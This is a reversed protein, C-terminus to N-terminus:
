KSELDLRPALGAILGVLEAQRHVDLKAMAAALQNRATARSVGLVQAADAVSLGAAIQLVIAAEAPTLRYISRLLDAPATVGAGAERIVLLAQQGGVVTAAGNSVARLPLVVVNASGKAVDEVAFACPGDAGTVGLAAALARQLATEDDAKRFTLRNALTIRVLTGARALAETRSNIAFVQGHAGLIAAAGDIRALMGELVNQTAVAAELRENLDFARLLHPGLRALLHACPEELEGLRDPIDIGIRMARREGRAVVISAGHTINGAPKLWEHYFVQRQLWDRSVLKPLTFVKGVPIASAPAEFPSLHQYHDLFARVSDPDYGALAVAELRRQGQIFLRAGLAFRVGPLAKTIRDAVAQWGGPDSGAVYIHEVLDLLTADSFGDHM